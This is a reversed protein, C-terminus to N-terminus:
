KDPKKDTVRNGWINVHLNTMYDKILEPTANTGVNELCEMIDDFRLGVQIGSVPYAVWQADDDKIQLKGDGNKSVPYESGDGALAPWTERHLLIELSRFLM